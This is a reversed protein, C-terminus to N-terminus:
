LPLPVQEGVSHNQVRHSVHSHEAHTTCSALMTVILYSGPVCAEACAVGPQQSRVLTLYVERCAIDSKDEMMQVSASKQQM